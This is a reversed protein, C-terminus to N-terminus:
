RRSRTSPRWGCRSPPTSCVTSSHARVAKVKEGLKALEDAAKVRDAATKGKALQSALAAVKADTAPDAPQMPKDGGPGVAAPAEYRVPASGAGDAAARGGEPGPLHNPRVQSRRVRPQAALPVAAHGQGSPRGLIGVPVDGVRRPRPHPQNTASGGSGNPTPPWSKPWWPAPNPPRTRTAGANPGGGGLIVVSRGVYAATIRVEIGDHTIGKPHDVGDPIPLTPPVPLIPEGVAVCDTLIVDGASRFGNAAGVNYGSGLCRGRV